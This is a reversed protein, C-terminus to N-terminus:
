HSKESPSVAVFAGGAARMKEFEALMGLAMDAKAKDRAIRSTWREIRMRAWRESAYTQWLMWAGLIVMVTGLSVMGWSRLSANVGMLASNVCICLWAAVVRGAHAQRRKADLEAM